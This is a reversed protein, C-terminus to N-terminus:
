GVAHKVALFLMYLGLIVQFIGTLIRSYEPLRTLYSRELLRFLDPRFLITLGSCVAVLGVLWIM